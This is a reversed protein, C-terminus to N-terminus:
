QTAQAAKEADREKNRRRRKAERSRGGKVGLTAPSVDVIEPGVRQMGTGPVKDTSHLTSLEYLVAQIQQPDTVNRKVAGAVAAMLIVVREIPVMMNLEKKRKIETDAVKRLQEMTGTVQDWTTDWAMGVTLQQHISKLAATAKEKDGSLLDVTFGDFLERVTSWRPIPQDDAFENLLTQIRAELLAINDSMDLLDPNWLAEEYLESMQSPLYRSFRGSTVGVGVQTSYGGHM